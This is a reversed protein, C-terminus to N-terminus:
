DHTSVQTRPKGTISFIRIPSSSEADAVAEFLKFESSSARNSEVQLLCFWMNLIMPLEISVTRILTFWICILRCPKIMARWVCVKLVTGEYSQGKSRVRAITKNKVSEITVSGNKLMLGKMFRCLM